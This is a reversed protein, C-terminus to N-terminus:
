KSNIQIQMEAVVQTKPCCLLSTSYCLHISICQVLQHLATESRLTSFTGTNGNWRSASGDQGGCLGHQGAQPWASVSLTHSSGQTQATCQSTGGLSACTGSGLTVHPGYCREKHLKSKNGRDFLCLLHRNMGLHSDTQVIGFKWNALSTRSLRLRDRSISVPWSNDATHSPVVPTRCLFPYSPKLQSQRNRGKLLKM